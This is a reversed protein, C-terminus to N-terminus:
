ILYSKKFFCERMKYKSPKKWFNDIFEYFYKEGNKTKKGGKNAMYRRM